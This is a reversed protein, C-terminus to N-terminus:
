HSDSDEFGSDDEDDFLKPQKWADPVGGMIRTILRKSGDEFAIRMAQKVAQDGTHYDSGKIYARGTDTLPTTLAPDKATFMVEIDIVTEHTKVRSAVARGVNGFFGQM